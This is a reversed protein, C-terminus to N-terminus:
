WCSWPWWSRGAELWIVYAAQRNIVDDLVIDSWSWGYNRLMYREWTARNIQLRGGNARDLRYTDPHTGHGSECGDIRWWTVCERQEWPWCGEETGAEVRRPLVAVAIEVDAAGGQDDSVAAQMGLVGAAGYRGGRDAAKHSVAPTQGGSLRENM